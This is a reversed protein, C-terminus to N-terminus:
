DDVTFRGAGCRRARTLAAGARTFLPEPRHDGDLHAVGVGVTVPIPGSRTAIPAAAVGACLRGAIEAASWGVDPLLLVFAPGDTRVLVDVDRHLHGLRDAVGALVDDAAQPGHAAAVDALRDVEIVAAGLRRGSRHAVAIEHRALEDLRRREAADSERLRAALCVTRYAAAAQVALAGALAVDAARHAPGAVVLTAVHDDGIALPAVLWSAPGTALRATWPGPPHVGAPPVAGPPLVWAGDAPLIALAIARTRRLVDAPDPAESLSRMAARLAEAPDAPDAPDTSDDEPRDLYGSRTLEPVTRM